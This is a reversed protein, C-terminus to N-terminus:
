SPAGTPATTPQVTAYQVPACPPTDCPHDGTGLVAVASAVIASIAAALVLILVINIAGDRIRARTIKPPPPTAMRITPEAMGPMIPVANGAASLYSYLPNRHVTENCPLDFKRCYACRRTDYIAM